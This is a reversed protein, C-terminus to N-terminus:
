KYRMAEQSEQGIERNAKTITEKEAATLPNARGADIIAQAAVRKYPQNSWLSTDEEKVNNAL